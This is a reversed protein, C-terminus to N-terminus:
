VPIKKMHSLKHCSSYVFDLLKNYSPELGEVSSPCKGMYKLFACNYDTIFVVNVYSTIMELVMWM